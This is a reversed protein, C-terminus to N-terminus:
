NGSVGLVRQLWDSFQAIPQWHAADFVIYAAFAAYLGLLLWGSFRGMGKLPLFLLLALVTLGILLIQLEVVTARTDATLEISSGTFLGYLLLPLGICLTIDFVNSGLANAVADDYHGNKGDRISIITDPVSTAAAALIIAVLYSSVGLGHGISLVAEVLLWTAAGIFLTAIVLLLWSASNTPGSRPMVATELDLTLWGQLRSHNADPEPAEPADLVLEGPQMGTFLVVLYLGYSAVLVAGHWWHLTGGYLLWLLVLECALLALGDRIVVKRSVQIRGSVIGGVVVLIVLAPIIAINFMASGTTTGLGIAFGESNGLLVLGVMVTLFEPMSSGIANISAGRVGDSLNRGLWQSAVDFGEAARWIVLMAFILAIFALPLSM